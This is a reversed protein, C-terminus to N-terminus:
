KLDKPGCDKCYSAKPALPHRPCTAPGGFNDVCHGKELILAKKRRAILQAHKPPGTIIHIYQKKYINNKGLAM